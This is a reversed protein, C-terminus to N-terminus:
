RGGDVDRRLYRGRRHELPQEDPAIVIEDIEAVVLSSWGVDRSEVYRVLARTRDVLAPGAATQEWTGLRFLGGPAPAVGGFAEALDHDAWHLLQVVGRGTGVLAAYLESDPDILGVVAAPDGNAVMVSSVALGAREDGSGATWLSVAGGIRGRLQRVPDPPEAFPNESHITM